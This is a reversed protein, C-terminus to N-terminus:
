HYVGAHYSQLVLKADNWYVRYTDYDLTLGNAWGGGPLYTPNNVLFLMEQNTGAM